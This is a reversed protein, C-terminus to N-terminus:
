AELESFGLSGPVPIRNDVPRKAYHALEEPTQERKRLRRRSGLDVYWNFRRDVWEEHLEVDTKEGPKSYQAAQLFVRNWRSSDARASPSNGATIENRFVQGIQRHRFPAQPADGAALQRFQRLHGARDGPAPLSHERRKRRAVTTKFMM